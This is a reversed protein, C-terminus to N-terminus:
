RSANDAAGRKSRGARPPAGREPRFSVAILIAAGVTVASDAVNFAPWHHPGWHVDVFDVVVGLAIRDWLNGLAGGLVLSLAVPLWRGSGAPLRVLWVVLGVSVALAIGALLWRQWGGAESLLSFAAGPNYTLTLSLMPLVVVPERFQLVERAYGKTLQDIAVVALSLALWRLGPRSSM